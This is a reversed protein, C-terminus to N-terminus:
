TELLSISDYGEENVTLAITKALGEYYTNYDKQALSYNCEMKWSELGVGEYYCIAYGSDYSVVEADKAKRDKAFVWEGVGSGFDIKSYNECLGGNIGSYSDASYKAAYTKFAAEAFSEKKIEGFITDAQKKAADLSGYSDKAFYIVRANRTLTTDRYSAKTCYYVTYTGNKDDFVFTDGAKTKKDFAWNSVDVIGITGSKMQTSEIDALFDKVKEDTEKDTLKSSSRYDEEVWEKFEAATDVKALSEAKKKAADYTNKDKTDSAVIDYSLYDVCQYTSKNDKYETELKEDSYKKGEFWSNRYNTALMQLELCDRVDEERVGMGFMAALIANLDVGNTAAYSEYDKIISDINAYDSEGLTFGNKKAEEALYLYENVSATTVDCMYDFWTGGDQLQACAQDKLSKTTDLGYFQKYSEQNQSYQYNFFYSMMSANVTYNPSEIVETGRQITGNSKLNNVVIYSLMGGVFGVLLVVAVLITLWKNRKEKKAKAALAEKNAKREEARMERLRKGKGM